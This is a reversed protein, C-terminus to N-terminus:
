KSMLETDKEAEEAEFKSFEIAKPLDWELKTALVRILVVLLICGIQSVVQAYPNGPFVRIILIYYLSAGILAALAYVRQRLIFPIDRLILDRIMGGGVATTMGLVCVGLLDMQKKIGVMAGSSAFAITGIIEIIFIYKELM